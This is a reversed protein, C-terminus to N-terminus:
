YHFQNQNKNKLFLMQSNKKVEDSVKPRNLSNVDESNLKLLNYSSLLKEIEVTLWIQPSYTKVTIDLLIRYKIPTQQLSM